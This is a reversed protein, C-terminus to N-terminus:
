TEFRRGRGVTSRAALGPTVRVGMTQPVAAPLREIALTSRAIGPITILTTVKVTASLHCGASCSIILSIHLTNSAQKQHALREIYLQTKHSNANKLVYQDSAYNPNMIDQFALARVVIQFVGVDALAVLAVVAVPTRTLRAHPWRDSHRGHHRFRAAVVRRHAVSVGGTRNVLGALAVTASTIRAVAAVTNLIAFLFSFTSINLIELMHVKKSVTVAQNEQFFYVVHYSDIDKVM